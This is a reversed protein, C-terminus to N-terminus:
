SSNARHLPRTGSMCSKCRVVFGCSSSYTADASALTSCRGRVYVCVCAKCVPFHKVSVRVCAKAVLSASV